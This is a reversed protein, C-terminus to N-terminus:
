RPAILDLPLCFVIDLPGRFAWELDFAKMAHQRYLDCDNDFCISEAFAPVTVLGIATTVLLVKLTKKL